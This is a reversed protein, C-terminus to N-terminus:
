PSCIVKSANEENRKTDKEESLNGPPQYHDPDLLSTFIAWFVVKKGKKSCLCVNGSGKLRGAKPDKLM